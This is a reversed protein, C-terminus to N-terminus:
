SGYLNKMIIFICIFTSDYLAVRWMTVSSNLSVEVSQLFLCISVEHLEVFLFAFDQREYPIVEPVEVCHPSIQQFATECFLVKPDQHVALQCHALM